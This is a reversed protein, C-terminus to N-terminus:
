QPQQQQKQRQKVAKELEKERQAAAARARETKKEHLHRFLVQAIARLAILFVTSSAFLVCLAVFASYLLDGSSNVNWFFCVVAIAFGLMLVVRNLIGMYMGIDGNKESGM